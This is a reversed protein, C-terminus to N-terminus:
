PMRKTMKCVIARHREEQTALSFAKNISPFSDTSLIQTRVNNYKDDNLGLVFDHVQEEEGRARLKSAGACICGFTVDM